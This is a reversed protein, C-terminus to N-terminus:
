AAFIKLAGCDAHGLARRELFIGAEQAGRVPTGCEACARGTRDWATYCAGCIFGELRDPM